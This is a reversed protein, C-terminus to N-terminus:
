SLLHRAVVVGDVHKAGNKRLLKAAAEISAGTTLVDDVLLISRGKVLVTTSLETASAMQKIRSSRNKGIQDVQSTRILANLYQLNRARAFSQAILAAQDYGRTRIRSSATPISVVITDEPLYPITDALMVGFERAYARRRQFKMAHILKKFVGKYSSLWWVRRLSSRSRCSTCVRNQSTIKNCLYCRSETQTLYHTRCTYCLM